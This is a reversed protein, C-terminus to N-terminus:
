LHSDRQRFTYYLYLQWHLTKVEFENEGIKRITPSSDSPFTEKSVYWVHRKHIGCILMGERERENRELIIGDKDPNDGFRYFSTSGRRKHCCIGWPHVIEEKTINRFHSVTISKQPSKSFEAKFISEQGKSTTTFYCANGQCCIYDISSPLHADIEHEESKVYLKQATRQFYFITGDDTMFISVGPHVPEKKAVKLFYKKPVDEDSDM